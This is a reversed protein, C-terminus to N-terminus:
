RVLLLSRALCVVSTRNFIGCRPEWSIALPSVQDIGHVVCCGPQPRVELDDITLPNNCVGCKWSATTNKENFRLFTGLDFCQVCM